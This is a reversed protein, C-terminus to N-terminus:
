DQTVTEHLNLVANAIMTWPALESWPIAPDTRRAGMSVLLGVDAPAAAFRERFHALSARLMAREQDDPNRGTCLRMMAALRSEDDGPLALVREALVRAAEVFQEDNWTVLAQLPTNTSPRRIVCSERTPADFLLLSPPPSARKWYTYLSRRWLDEGEGRTFVRTNSAPMAVEQWLGEPQYPNVSPGGLKEALLGSAFLALDRVQEAALRRRPYFALLRNDPDIEALDLRIRSAQRYTASTVIRRLLAHVNWGSDRFDIALDDLLEPHSPWEGQLGFDESTRVLGTGFLM